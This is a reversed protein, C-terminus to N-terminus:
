KDTGILLIKKKRLNLVLGSFLHKCMMLENSTMRYQAVYKTQKKSDAQSTAAAREQDPKKV